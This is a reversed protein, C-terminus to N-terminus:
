KVIELLEVDFVLTAGPPIDAGQGRDGYAADSPCYLKAKGGVKMFQLGQSWCKVVQDLKFTAPGGHKESSDFVHGDITTGKYNVKVNDTATPSAGTGEAVTELLIGADLKKIKSNAAIKDLYEKGKKKEEAAGAARRQQALPQIKPGFTELDVKGTKGAVGDSLGAKVLDLEAPTLKFAALQNAIVMGLAYLTKDDDTKLEPDAAHAVGGGVFAALVLPVLFRKM